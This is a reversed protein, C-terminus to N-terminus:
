YRSYTELTDSRNQAAQFGLGSNPNDRMSRNQSILEELIEFLREKRIPKPIIADM